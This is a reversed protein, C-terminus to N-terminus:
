KWVVMQTRLVESSLPDEIRSVHMTCRGVKRWQRRWRRTTAVARRRTRVSCPTQPVIYMMPKDTGPSEQIEFAGLGRLLLLHSMLLLYTLNAPM